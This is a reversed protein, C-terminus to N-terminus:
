RWRSWTYKRGYVPSAGEPVWDCGRGMGVVDFYDNLGANDDEDDALGFWFKAAELLAAPTKTTDIQLDYDKVSQSEEAARGSMALYLYGIARNISGNGQALFGVIEIDSLTEFNGIGPVAPDYEEYQTDGYLVRFKGVDTTPDVPIAGPNGEPYTAM